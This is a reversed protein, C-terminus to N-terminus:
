FMTNDNAATEPVPQIVDWHEVIKGDEVRFIDVVAVGRDAPNQKSIVHLWVLDGDAASRVIRSSREPNKQFNDSFFEIIPARGDPVTPNHQIYDEAVFREAATVDHDNFFSNYFDIVLTRNAAEVQPNRCPNGSSGGCAAIEATASSAGLMLALAAHRLKPFTM